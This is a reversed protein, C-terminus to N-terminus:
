CTTDLQAHDIMYFSIGIIHAFLITLVLQRAIAYVLRSFKHILLMRAILSNIEKVRLVKILILMKFYHFTYHRTGASLMLIAILGIDGFIYFRMYRDIVRFRNTVIMGRRIFGVEFQVFIDGILIIISIWNVVTVVESKLESRWANDGYAIM